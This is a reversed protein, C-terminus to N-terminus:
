HAPTSRCGDSRQRAQEYRTAVVANIIPNVEEIRAIHAEVVDVPSLEGARLKRALEAAGLDLVSSEM